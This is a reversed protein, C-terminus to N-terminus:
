KPQTKALEAAIQMFDIKACWGPPTFVPYSIGKLAQTGEAPSGASAWAPMVPKALGGALVAPGPSVSPPSPPANAGAPQAAPPSPLVAWGPMTLYHLDPPMKRSSLDMLFQRVKAVELRVAEFAQQVPGASFSGKWSELLEVAAALHGSGQRVTQVATRLAAEAVERPLSPSQLLQRCAALAEKEQGRLALLKGYAAIANVRLPAAQSPDFAIQRVATLALKWDEESAKDLAQAATVGHCLGALLLVAALRSEPTGACAARSCFM